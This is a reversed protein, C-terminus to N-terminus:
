RSPRRGADPTEPEDRCWRRPRNTRPPRLLRPASSPPAIGRGAWPRDRCPHRSVACQVGEIPCTVMATGFGTDAHQAASPMTVASSAPQPGDPSGAVGVVCADCGPAPNRLASQLPTVSASMVLATPDEINVLATTPSAPHKQCSFVTSPVKPCPMPMEVQHYRPLSISVSRDSSCCAPRVSVSSDISPLLPKLAYSALAHLM